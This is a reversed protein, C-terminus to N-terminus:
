VNPEELHKTLTICAVRDKYEYTIKDVVNRVLHLGIGGVAREDLTKGVDVHKVKTLDFKEVDFDTLRIVLNKGTINLLISITEGGGGSYKVINTFLEEIALNAAFATTEDLDHSDVFRSTFEFVDDLADISKKFSRKM